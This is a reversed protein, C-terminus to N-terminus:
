RGSLLTRVSTSVAAEERFSIVGRLFNLEADPFFKFFNANPYMMGDTAEDCKGITTAKPVTYYKESSYNRDFTYYVYRM